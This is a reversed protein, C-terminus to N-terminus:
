RNKFKEVFESLAKHLLEEDEKTIDNHEIMSKGLNPYSGELFRFLEKEFEPIDKINIEKM